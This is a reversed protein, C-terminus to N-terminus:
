REQSDVVPSGGNEILTWLMKLVPSSIEQASVADAQSLCRNTCIKISLLKAKTLHDMDDEELWDVDPDDTQETFTLQLLCDSM